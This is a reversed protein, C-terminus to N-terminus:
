DCRKNETLWSHWVNIMACTTVENARAALDSRKIKIFKEM